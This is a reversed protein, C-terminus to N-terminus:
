KGLVSHKFNTQIPINVGEDTDVVSKELLELSYM